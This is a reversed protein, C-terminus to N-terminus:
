VELNDELTDRMLSIASEPLQNSVEIFGLLLRLVSELNHIKRELDKKKELELELHDSNDM